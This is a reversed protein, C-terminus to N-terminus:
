NTRRTLLDALLALDAGRAGLPALAAAAQRALSDALEVAGEMGLETVATRKAQRSDKGPTKGLEGASGTVDLIDDVVQFALGLVQGYTRLAQVITDAAGGCIAGLVTSASILSATKRRHIDQLGEIGEATPCLNMDAVQGAILAAGGAAAALEDVLRGACLGAGGLLGFARTLLADGTLIAMAEGFKVHATARGRRLADDDMAPLDDHVLSYCHILEVAVACRGVMEEPARGAACSAEAALYVLSPRLRKGGETCYRMAAALAAPTSPEVLWRSLDVEFRRGCPKLLGDLSRTPTNEQTM